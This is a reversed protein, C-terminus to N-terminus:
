EAYAALLCLGESARNQGGFQGGYSANVLAQAPWAAAPIVAGKLRPRGGGDAVLGDMTM